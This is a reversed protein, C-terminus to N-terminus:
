PGEELEIVVRGPGVVRAMLEKRTSTHVVRIMAGIAGASRAQGTAVVNLGGAQVIISVLEGSRVAPVQRFQNAVLADGVGWDRMSEAGVLGVLSTAPKQGNNPMPAKTVAVQDAQVITGRPIPSLAVVAPIMVKIDLKPFISRWRRGAVDVGIGVPGNGTLRSAGIVEVSVPGEPMGVVMQSSPRDAWRVLVDARPVGHKVSAARAVAEVVLAERLEAAQVPAPAVWAMFFAFVAVRAAKAAMDGM